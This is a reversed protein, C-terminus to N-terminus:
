QASMSDDGILKIAAIVVLVLIYNILIIFLSIFLTLLKGWLWDYFVEGCMKKGFNVSQQYETRKSLDHVDEDFDKKWSKRMINSQKKCFCQLPGNFIVPGKNQLTLQQNHNYEEVADHFWHKFKGKYVKSYGSCDM